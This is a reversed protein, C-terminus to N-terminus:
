EAAEYCFLFMWALDPNVNELLNGDDDKFLYNGNSSDTWGYYTIGRKLIYMLEENVPYVGTASDACKTYQQMLETYDEKIYEGKANYFAARFPQAGINGQGNVMNYLSIFRGSVLNVYLVPGDKTGIHYLGDEDNFVLTYDDTNGTYDVDTLTGGTYTFAEPVITGTYAEYPVLDPNYGPDGLRTIILSCEGSGKIGIVYTINGEQGDWVTITFSNDAYDDLSGTQNMPFTAVNWYQIVAEPNSTTFRYIGSREPAFYFLTVDDEVMYGVQGNGYEVHTGGESVMYVPNSEDGWVYGLNGSDTEEALLITLETDMATLVATSKEYYASTQLLKVTYNARELELIVQGDADTNGTAALKGAEDYVAVVIGPAPTGAYDTVTIVYEADGEPETPETSPETPDTAETTEETPETTEETPETTEETTESTEETAETTEETAETTEETSETTEETPDTAEPEEEAYAGAVTVKGASIIWTEMDVPILVQIAVPEGATVDLTLVLDGNEDAVGDASLVKLGDNICIDGTVNADESEVGTIRFTVPGTKAPTWSYYVGDEDGAELETTFSTIDTLIIPNERHGLPYSFSLTYAERVTGSNGVTLATPMMPMAPELAVTIRGNADAGYTVGNYIVYADADEITLIMGGVNYAHYCLFKGKSIKDTTYPNSDIIIPNNETGPTYILTVTLETSGEPFTYYSQETSYGSPLNSLYVSYTDTQLNVAATGAADTYALADGVIVMANEVPTVGDPALVTVKYDTYTVVVKTLVIEGSLREATLAVEANEATYDVPITVTATYDGLPLEASAVGAEDTTLVGTYSDGKVMLKVGSMPAGADDKVTVTYTGTQVIEEEEEGANDGLTARMLFTGAPYKFSEDPVTFMIFQINQGKKVKVSLSSGEGDADLTRYAYSNLNYLAFNYEVGATGELCTLTLVGDKEAKYAYYVGQENGANVKVTFDGLSMAKPNGITGSKSTLTAKFTQTETGTNGIQLLVPTYTDECNVTLGVKGNSPEYTKDGLIVVADNSKIQMYMDFAKYIRVYVTKGPEVTVEFSNVGGFEYPDELSGQAGVVPIIEQPDEVVDQVYDEGVFTKFIAEFGETSPISGEHILTVTGFRDIVVTTPYATLGLIQAWQPDVVAVPMTLGMDAKYQAVAEEDTDIPNLALVAIRDSYKEYAQQLYPFEAKCPQCNMFWFNLVVADKEQLLQSLTHTNGDTDTITFDFMMDGLGVTVGELDDGSLLGSELVIETETGTLPYFEEAKYGQPVDALVAVYSDSVVDCFTIVGQDDTKAFWVLEAKTEDTYVYVGIGSMGEDATNKVTVTHAVREPPATEAAPPIEQRCGALVCSVCLTLCLLGCLVRKTMKTM